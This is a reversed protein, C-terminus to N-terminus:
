FQPLPDSYISSLPFDVTSDDGQNCLYSRRSLSTILAGWLVNHTTALQSPLVDTACVIYSCFYVQTSKDSQVPDEIEVFHNYQYNTVLLM